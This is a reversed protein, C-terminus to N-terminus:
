AGYPSRQVLPLGHPPAASAPKSCCAGALGGQRSAKITAAAARCDPAALVARGDQPGQIPAGCAARLAGQRAPSSCGSMVAVTNRPVNDVRALGASSIGRGAVTVSRSMREVFPNNRCADFMVIALKAAQSAEGLLLELPVAEEATAAHSATAPRHRLWATGHRNVGRTGQHAHEQIRRVDAEDSDALPLEVRRRVGIGAEALAPM